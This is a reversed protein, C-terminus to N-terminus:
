HRFHRYQSTIGEWLHLKVTVLLHTKRKLLHTDFVLSCVPVVLPTKVCVLYHRHGVESVRIYICCQLGFKVEQTLDWPKHGIYGLKLTQFHDNDYGMTERFARVWILSECLLWFSQSCFLLKMLPLVLKHGNPTGLIKEVSNFTSM